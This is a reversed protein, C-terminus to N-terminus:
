SSDRPERTLAVGDRAAAHTHQGRDERRRGAKQARFARLALGLYILSMLLPLVGILIGRSSFFAVAFLFWIRRTCRATNGCLCSEIPRGDVGRGRRAEGAQPEGVHLYLVDDEADYDAHDFALPWIM